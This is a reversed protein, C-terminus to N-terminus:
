LNKPNSINAEILRSGNILNQLMRNSPEELAYTSLLHAKLIRYSGFWRPQFKELSKNRVLV